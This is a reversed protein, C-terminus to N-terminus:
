DFIYFFFLNQFPIILAKPIHKIAKIFHSRTVCFLVLFEDILKEATSLNNYRYLSLATSGNMFHKEKKQRRQDKEETKEAESIRM